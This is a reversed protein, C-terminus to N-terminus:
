QEDIVAFQKDFDAKSMVRMEGLTNVYFMDGAQPLHKKIWGIGLNIVNGSVFIIAGTRLRVEAIEIAKVNGVPTYEPLAKLTEFQVGKKKRAPTQVEGASDTTSESEEQTGQAGSDQTDFVPDKKAPDVKEVDTQAGADSTGKNETEPTKKDSM